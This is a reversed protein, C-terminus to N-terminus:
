AATDQWIVMKRGPKPDGNLYHQPWIQKVDRHIARAIAHHITTSVSRGYVVQNVTQPSRKTARAIAAQNLGEATLAGIIEEPTMGTPQVTKYKGM